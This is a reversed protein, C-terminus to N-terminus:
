KGTKDEFKEIRIGFEEENPLSDQLCIYSELSLTKQRPFLLTNLLQNLFPESYSEFVKISTEGHCSFTRDKV